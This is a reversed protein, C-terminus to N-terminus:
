DLFVFLFILNPIRPTFGTVMSDHQSSSQVDGYDILSSYTVM